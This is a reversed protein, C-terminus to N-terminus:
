SNRKIPAVDSKGGKLSVFPNVISGGCMVVFAIRFTRQVMGSVAGRGFNMAAVEIPTVFSEGM